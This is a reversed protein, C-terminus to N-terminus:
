RLCYTWSINRPKKGEIRQLVPTSLWGIEEQLKQLTPILDSQGKYSSLIEDTKAFDIM